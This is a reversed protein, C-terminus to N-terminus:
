KSGTEWELVKRIVSYASEANTIGKFDRQTDEVLVRAHRGVFVQPSLRDRRKPPGNNASLWAQWYDSRRGARPRDRSGLNLYWTLRAIVDILWDNLVDFQVACVWRHFYGDVYVTASRSRARYEGPEIRACYRWSIEPEAGRVLVSGSRRQPRARM